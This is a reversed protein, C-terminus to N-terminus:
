GPDTPGPASQDEDLWRTPMQTCQDEEDEEDNGTTVVKGQFLLRRGECTDCGLAKVLRDSQDQWDAAASISASTWPGGGMRCYEGRDPAAQMPCRRDVDLTMSAPASAITTDDALSLVAWRADAVEIVTGVGISRAVGLARDRWDAPPDDIAGRPFAIVSPETRRHGRDVNWAPLAGVGLLHLQRILDGRTQAPDFAFAEGSEVGRTL